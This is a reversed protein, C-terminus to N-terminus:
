PSNKSVTCAERDIVRPAKIYNGETGDLFGCIFTDCSASIGKVGSQVPFEYCCPNPRSPAESLRFVSDGRMSNPSNERHFILPLLFASFGRFCIRRLRRFTFNRVPPNRERVPRALLRKERRWLVRVRGTPRPTRKGRLLKEIEGFYCSRTLGRTCFPNSPKLIAFNISRCTRGGRRRMLSPASARARLTRRRLIRNEEERLSIMM